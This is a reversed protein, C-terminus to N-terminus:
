WWFICGRCKRVTIKRNIPCPQYCQDSRGHLPPLINKRFTLVWRGRGPVGCSDEAEKFDWIKHSNLGRKGPELSSNFSAFDCGSRSYFEATHVSRLGKYPLRRHWAVMTDAEYKKVFARRPFGSGDIQKHRYLSVSETTGRVHGAFHHIIKRWKTTKQSPFVLV